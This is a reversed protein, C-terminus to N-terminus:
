QLRTDDRRLILTKRARDYLAQRQEKTNPSLAAVARALLPFYDAM